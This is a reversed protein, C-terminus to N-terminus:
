GPLSSTRVSTPWPSPSWIAPCLGHTLEPYVGVYDQPKSRFISRLHGFTRCPQHGLRLSTLHGQVDRQQHNGLDDPRELGELPIGYRGNRMDDYGKYRGGPDFDVITIEDNLCDLQGAIPVHIDGIGM